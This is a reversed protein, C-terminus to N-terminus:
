SFLKTFNYKSNFFQQIFPIKILLYKLKGECDYSVSLNFATWRGVSKGPTLTADRSPPLWTVHNSAISTGCVHATLMAPEGELASHTRNM